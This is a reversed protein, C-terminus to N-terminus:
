TIAPEIHCKLSKPEIHNPSTGNNRYRNQYKSIFFNIKLMLAGIDEISFKRYLTKSKEINQDINYRSKFKAWINGIFKGKKMQYKM